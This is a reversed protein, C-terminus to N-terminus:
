SPLVPKRLFSEFEGVLADMQDLYEALLVWYPVARTEREDQVVVDSTLLLKYSGSPDSLRVQPRPDFPNARMSVRAQGLPPLRIQFEVMIRGGGQVGYHHFDRVRVAHILRWRPVRDDVLRDFERPSMALEGLKAAERMIELAARAPYVAAILKPFAVDYNHVAHAEQLLHTARALQEKV